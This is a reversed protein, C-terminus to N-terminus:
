VSSSDVGAFSFSSSDPQWIFHIELGLYDQDVQKEYWIHELCHVEFSFCYQRKRGVKEFWPADQVYYFESLLYYEGTLKAADPFSDGSAVAEEIAQQVAQQIQKIIEGHHIQLKAHETSEFEPAVKIELESAWVPTEICIM